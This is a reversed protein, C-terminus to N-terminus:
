NHVTLIKHIKKYTLLLGSKLCQEIFIGDATDHEPNNIGVKKAIDTRIAFCGWDIKSVGLETNLVNFGLHNHLCNYYVLDVGKVSNLVEEVAVPIYYDQISTQIIYDTNVLNNLADIRNYCGWFGTNVESEVYLIRDDSYNSVIRSIEENKGNNYIILRGRSDTQCKMSSIFGNVADIENYCVAVFTVM